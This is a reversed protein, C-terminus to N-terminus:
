RGLEVTQQRLPELTGVNSGGDPFRSFRSMSPLVRVVVLAPVREMLLHLFRQPTQFFHNAEPALRQHGTRSHLPCLGSLKASTFNKITEHHTFM